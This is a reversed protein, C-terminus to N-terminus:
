HSVNRIKTIRKFMIRFRACDTWTERPTFWAYVCAIYYRITRTTQLLRM